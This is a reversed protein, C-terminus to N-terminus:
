DLFFLEDATYGLVQYNPVFDVDPELVAMWSGGNWTLDNATLDAGALSDPHDAARYSGEGAPNMYNVVFARSSVRVYTTNGNVDVDVTGAVIDEDDVDLGLDTLQHLNYYRWRYLPFELPGMGPMERTQTKTVPVLHSMAGGSAHCDGCAFAAGLAETKPRVGHGGLTIGNSYAPYDAIAAFFAPQQEAPLAAGQMGLFMKILTGDPVKMTILESEDEFSPYWQYAADLGMPSNFGQFARLGNNAAALMDFYFPVGRDIYGDGDADWPSHSGTVYRVLDFTSKDFLIMNPFIQM